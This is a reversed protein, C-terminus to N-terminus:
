NGCFVYDKHVDAHKSIFWQVNCVKLQLTTLEAQLSLLWINNGVSILLIKDTLKVFNFHWHYHLTGPMLVNFFRHFCKYTHSM